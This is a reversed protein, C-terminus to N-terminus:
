LTILEPKLRTCSGRQTQDSPVRIIKTGYETQFYKLITLTNSDFIVLDDIVLVDLDSRFGLEMLKLIGSTESEISTKIDFLAFDISGLTPILANISGEDYYTQIYERRDTLDLQVKAKGRKLLRLIERSYTTTDTSESVEPVAITELVNSLYIVHRGDRSGRWLRYVDRSDYDYHGADNTTVKLKGSKIYNGITVRSVNLLQEVEKIKM